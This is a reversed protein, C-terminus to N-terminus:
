SELCSRLNQLARRIQSKLTGLPVDLRQALEGYSHGKLFADHIATRMRAELGELCGRLREHEQREEILDIPTPATDVIVSAVDQELPEGVAQLARRRDIARNRAVTALWTVPSGLRANYYGAKEWVIMYVDQLVEEAEHRNPLITLIVGFLKSSTQDYVVELAKQDGNAVDSIARVLAARAANRMQDAPPMCAEDSVIHAWLADLPFFSGTESAKQPKPRRGEFGAQASLIKEATKM